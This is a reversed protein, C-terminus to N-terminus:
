PVPIAIYLKKEKRKVRLLLFGGRRLRKLARDVDEPGKIDVNNMQLLEDGPMLMSESAPSKPRVAKVYLKGGKSELTIGLHSLIKLSRKSINLEKLTGLVVWLTMPKKGRLIEVKVKTGPPTEATWMPLDATRKVRKGNFSIIVDGPKLGAKDAPGGKVVSTIRAGEKTDEAEVGLWGRSVKGRTILQHVVNKVMNIPVAFGIGQANKIIATNIGVVEGRANVLPGGSNGPNISADTQIFQDYAREGIIRGKASIIGATVTYSLGFPNGIAIVWEAIELRDSDGLPAPILRHGKPDVKLVAIDTGRDYGVLRAPLVTGDKLVVKIDPTGEVVHYNTIIYGSASYIVGSGLSRKTIQKPMKGYLQAFYQYPNNPKLKVKKVTFINVVSPAVRKFAKTLNPLGQAWVPSSLLILALAIKHRIKSLGRHM